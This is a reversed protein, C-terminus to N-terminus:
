KSVGQHGKSLWKRQTLFSFHVCAYFGNAAQIWQFGVRASRGRDRLLGDALARSAGKTGRRHLRSRDTQGVGHPGEADVPRVTRRKYESKSM